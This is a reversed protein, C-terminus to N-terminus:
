YYTGDEKPYLHLEVEIDVGYDTAGSNSTTNYEWALTVGKFLTFQFRSARWSSVATGIISMAYQFIQPITTIKSYVDAANNTWSAPFNNVSWQGTAYTFTPTWGLTNEIITVVFTSPNPTSLWRARYVKYGRLADRMDARQQDTLESFKKGAAM